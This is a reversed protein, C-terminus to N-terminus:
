SFDFTVFRPLILLSTSFSDPEGSDSLMLCDELSSDILSITYEDSFTYYWSSPPVSYNNLPETLIIEWYPASQRIVLVLRSTLIVPNDTYTMSSLPIPPQSTLFPRFYRIVPVTPPVNVTLHVPNFADAGKSSAEFNHEGNTTITENLPVISM